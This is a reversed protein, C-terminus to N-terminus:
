AFSTGAIVGIQFVSQLRDGYRVGGFLEAFSTLEHAARALAEPVAGRLSPSEDRDAITNRREQYL